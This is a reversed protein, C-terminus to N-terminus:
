IILFVGPVFVFYLVWMVIGLIVSVLAGKGAARASNPKEDHWVLFLVLGVVPICFGLIEYGIGGKDVSASRQTNVTDQYEASEQVFHCYSCVSTNDDIEKGCNKCYM